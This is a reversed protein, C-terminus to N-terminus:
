GTPIDLEDNLHNDLVTVVQVKTYEPPIPTCHLMRGAMATGTAVDRAIKKLADFKKLWKASGILVEPEVHRLLEEMNPDIECNDAEEDNNCYDDRGVGGHDITVWDDTFSEFGGISCSYTNWIARLSVV